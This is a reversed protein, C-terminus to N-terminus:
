PLRYNDRQWTAANLRESIDEMRVVAASRAVALIADAQLWKELLSFEGIELAKGLIVREEPIYTFNKVCGRWREM